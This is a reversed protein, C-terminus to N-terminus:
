KSSVKKWAENAAVVLPDLSPAFPPTYILDVDRIDNVSWADRILPVLVDLRHAAGEQGVIETGLLRGSGREVVMRVYIPKAGPYIKVRSWHKISSALADFGAATAESLRLGATAVELDFVKVASAPSVGPFREASGGEPRAANRAAVRATRFATPSLPVHVRAGDVIRRVEAVDGCAWVNPLNTRMEDDTALAGTKGVKTGAGVALETNPKIGMAIVVLQCGIREGRDTVVVDVRGSSNTELSVGREARVFVGNRKLEGAIVDNFEEDIYAPLPRGAPELISVRIGRATLAEAAEIGVYGAGFVVAHQVDRSELYRRLKVADDLRRLPFVNEGEVGEIEPMRARAGTAIIFKDFREESEIGSLLDHAVLRNQHPRISTVATRVNVRAGRTREFEAPTLLVLRHHDEIWGAVYYPIECAGYSIHADKEFLVVDAEPDTRVAEAAAAPGSAV